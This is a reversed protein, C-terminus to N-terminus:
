KWGLDPSQALAEIEHRYVQALHAIHRAILQRLELPQIVEAEQGYGLIWWSIENLGSVTVYFDLSGDPRFEIRQTKHWIVEAVNTAVKPGFRIHVQQDRGPEPILHWANRLYRDISFRQPVRVRDELITVEQIRGVNFTRVARHVTSRGILYWSRRSFFLRYPSVKTQAFQGDQIRYYRIRVARREALAQLLRGFVEQRGFLPNTQPLHIEISEAARRLREQQRAPLSSQLKLAASRAAAFFPLNRDDGLEYCLVLLALVEEFSFDEPPVLPSQPVEYRQLEPDYRILIGAERLLDLDRFITRRSVQCEQALGEVNYRKGAQLLQLLRLLRCLRTRKM